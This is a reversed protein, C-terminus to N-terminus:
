DLAAIEPGKDKDQPGYYDVLADVIAEAFSQRFSGQILLSRDRTNNLNAVEILLAHPIRTERVVAPIFARGARIVRDRIAPNPHVLIKHKRLSSLIDRALRRSLGMASERSAPTVGSPLYRARESGPVYIMTGRISGHLADAHFSLFVMREDPVGRARLDAEISNAIRPRENVGRRTAGKSRLDYVRKKGMVLWEDTDQHIMGDLPKYGSSRDLITTYVRARTKTELLQKVRCM